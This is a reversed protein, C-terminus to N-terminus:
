ASRNNVVKKERMLDVEEKAKELLAHKNEFESSKMYNEISQYQADSFRALSFFAQTKQSQHKADSGGSRDEIVEM